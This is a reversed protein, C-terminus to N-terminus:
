PGRGENDSHVSAHTVDDDRSAAMEQKVRSALFAAPSRPEGPAPSSAASRSARANAFIRCLDPAAGVQRLLVAGTKGKTGARCSPQPSIAQVVHRM